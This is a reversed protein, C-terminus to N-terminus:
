IACIHKMKEIELKSKVWRQDRIIHTCDVFELDKSNKLAEAITHFDKIPMKVSQEHGWPMGIKGFSSQLGKFKEILLSVGDDELDPGTWKFICDKALWTSKMPTYTISSVVAIPSEGVRPVILYIPRTPSYWFVSSFGTYYHFNEETTIFMADLGSESM